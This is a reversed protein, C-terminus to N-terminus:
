RRAKLHGWATAVKGQPSVALVATELGQDMIAVVEDKSLAEAFFAIEDIRGNLVFGPRGAIQWAATEPPSADPDNAKGQKEGNIYLTYDENGERVMAIHNWADIPLEFGNLLGHIDGGAERYDFGYVEGPGAYINFRDKDAGDERTWMIAVHPVDYIMVWFMMTADPAAAPAHFIFAKEPVQDVNFIAGGEGEMELAGGFAGDAIWNGGILEGDNGGDTADTITDGDDGDLLWAGVAEAAYSRGAIMLGFTLAALVFLKTRRDM